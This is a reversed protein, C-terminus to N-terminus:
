RDQEHQDQVQKQVSIAIKPLDQKLANILPLNGTIAKAAIQITKDLKEGKYGNVNTRQQTLRQYEALLPYAEYLQALVQKKHQQQLSEIQKTLNEPTKHHQAAL